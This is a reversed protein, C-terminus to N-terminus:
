KWKPIKKIQQIKETKIKNINVKKLKGGDIMARQQFSNFQKKKKM